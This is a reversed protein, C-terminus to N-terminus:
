LPPLRGRQLKSDRPAYRQLWHFHDPSRSYCSGRDQAKVCNSRSAVVRAISMFYEDWSPREFSLSSEFVAQVNAHLEEVSGDNRVAHDALERVALLQQAAPDASGLERAELERLEELTGPDGSRGRLQIREFRAEIDAGIWMLSFPYGSGRLAEVEAPHRISDIATNRDPQLQQILIEALVAPGASGRQAKSGGQIMAERSEEIGEERACRPDRRVSLARLLEAGGSLPGGRGEGGRKSGGGMIM